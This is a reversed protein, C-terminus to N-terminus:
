DSNNVNMPYELELSWYVLVEIKFYMYQLGLRVPVDFGKLSM